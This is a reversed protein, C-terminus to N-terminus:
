VTVRMVRLTCLSLSTCSDSLCSTREVHFNWWVHLETGEGHRAFADFLDMLADSNDSSSRQQSTLLPVLDDFTLLPQQQQNDCTPASPQQHGAAPDQSSPQEPAAAPM